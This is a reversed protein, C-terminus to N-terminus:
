GSTPRGGRHHPLERCVSFPSLHVLDGFVIDLATGPDFDDSGASFGAAAFGAGVRLYSGGDFRRRAVFCTQRRPGDSAPISKANSFL